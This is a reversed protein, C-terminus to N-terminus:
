IKRKKSKKYISSDHSNILLVKKTIYHKIHYKQSPTHFKKRQKCKYTMKSIFKYKELRFNDIFYICVLYGQIKLYIKLYSFDVM